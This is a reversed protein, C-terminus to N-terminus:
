GGSCSGAILTTRGAERRWVQGLVGGLRFCELVPRDTCQVPACRRGTASPRGNHEVQHVAERGCGRSRPPGGLPAHGTRQERGLHSGRRNDPQRDNPACRHAQSRALEPWCASDSSYFLILISYNGVFLLIRSHFCSAQPRKKMGRQAVLFCESFRWHELDRKITIM